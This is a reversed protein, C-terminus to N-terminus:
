TRSSTRPLQRGSWYAGSDQRMAEYREIRAQAATGGADILHSLLCELTVMAGSLCGFSHPSQTSFLVQHDAHVGPAITDSDSLLVITAGADRAMRLARITSTSYPAFTIVFLCDEPGIDLLDDAADGMHRPVLELSPLAMRGVYHFYYALAHSSRSATVYCHRASTMAAIIAEVREATMLRLSRATINLANRAAKAQLVGTPSGTALQDLWDAGLDAERATVLAARFPARFSEFGSYGFAEALRTLTNPSVGAKAATVRIPDLGFDGPADIVYKAATKLKAPLTEIRSKLTDLLRNAQRPDIRATMPRGSWINQFHSLWFM